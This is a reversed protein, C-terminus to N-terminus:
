RDERKGEEREGRKGRGRKGRRGRGGGGEEGEEEEEREGKKGGEVCVQWIQMALALSDSMGSHKLAIVVADVFVLVLFM